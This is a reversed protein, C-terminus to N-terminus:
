FSTTKKRRINRQIWVFGNRIDITLFTLVRDSRQNPAFV